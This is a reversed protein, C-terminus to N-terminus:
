VRIGLKRKFSVWGLNNYELAQFRLRDFTKQHMGKPKFLILDNSEDGGLRKRIKNAKRMMRNPYDEQQSSYALNYCHRCLFYRGAGYLVAVRKRCRPCQFWQRYGGYNCATRVIKVTETVNEWEGQWERFRYSLIIRDDERRYNIWGAKEDGRSWSLTGLCISTLFGNNKLWRIDIRKQSETTPKAWSSRRGSGFGGM